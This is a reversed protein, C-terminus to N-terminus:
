KNCYARTVQQNVKEVLNAMVSPGNEPTLGIDAGTRYLAYSPIFFGSALAKGLM